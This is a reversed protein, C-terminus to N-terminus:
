ASKEGFSGASDKDMLKITGWKLIGRHLPNIIWLPFPTSGNQICGEVPPSSGGTCVSTAEKRQAGRLPLRSGYGAGSGFSAGM